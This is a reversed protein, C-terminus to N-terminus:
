VARQLQARVLGDVKSHSRSSQNGTGAIGHLYPVVQWSDLAGVKFLLRGLLVFLVQQTAASMGQDELIKTLLPTEPTAPYPLRLHHRAARGVLEAPLPAGPPPYPVFRESCGPGPLSPLMLVGNIFSILSVDRELNPFGEDALTAMYFKLDGPRRTSARYTDNNSFVKNLYPQSCPATLM